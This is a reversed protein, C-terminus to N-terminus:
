VVMKLFPFPKAPGIATMPCSMCWPPPGPRKLTLTARVPEMLIPAEKKELKGKRYRMGTNESRAM